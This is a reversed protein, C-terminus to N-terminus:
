KLRSLRQNTKTIDFAEPDFAGGIWELMDDHEPHNPDNFSTRETLAFDGEWEALVGAHHQPLSWM